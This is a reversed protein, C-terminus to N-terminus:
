APSDEVREKFKEGPIAQLTNDANWAYSTQPLVGAEVHKKTPVHKTVEVDVKRVGPSPPVQGDLRRRAQSLEMRKMESDYEANKMKIDMLRREEPTQMSALARGIDQGHGGMSGGLGSINPSTDGVSVPSGFALNAGIAALPHIGRKKAQDIKWLLSKQAFERQNQWNQGFMQRQVEINESFQKRALKQQYANDFTGGIGGGIIGGAPGGFGYGIGSGIAGGAGGLSEGIDSIFSGLGM